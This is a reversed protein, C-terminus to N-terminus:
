ERMIIGRTVCARLIEAQMTNPKKASTNIGFKQLLATLQAISEKPDDEFYKTACTLAAHKVVREAEVPVTFGSSLSNKTANDANTLSLEVAAQVGARDTSVSTTTLAQQPSEQLLQRPTVIRVRKCVETFLGPKIPTPPLSREKKNTEQLEKWQSMTLLPEPAPNTLTGKANSIQADFTKKIQATGNWPPARMGAWPCRPICAALSECMACRGRLRRGIRIHLCNLMGCHFHSDYVVFGLLLVYGAPCLLCMACLTVHYVCHSCFKAYFFGVADEFMNYKLCLPFGLNLPHPPSM